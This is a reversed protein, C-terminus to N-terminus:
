TKVRNKTFCLLIQVKVGFNKDSYNQYTIFGQVIM